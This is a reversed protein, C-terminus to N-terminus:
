SKFGPHDHYNECIELKKTQMWQDKTWGSRWGPGVERAHLVLLADILFDKPFKDGYHKLDSWTYTEAAIDVFLKRLVDGERTNDFLYKLDRTPLVWDQCNKQFLLDVVANRLGPIGRMDGFLYIKLLERVSLPITGDDNLKHYLKGSLIWHFFARFVEPDDKTMTILKPQGKRWEKKLANRFYSSYHKLLGEYVPFRRM